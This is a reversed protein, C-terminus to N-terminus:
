KQHCQANKILELAMGHTKKCLLAAEDAENCASFSSSFEALNPPFAPWSLCHMEHSTSKIQDQAEKFSRIEERFNKCLISLFNNELLSDGDLLHLQPLLGIVEERVNPNSDFMPNSLGNRTDNLHLVRLKALNVLPVLVDVASILNGALNFTHLSELEECGELSSIKNDSVILVVLYSLTKLASLSSLQNCSLDLKVLNLCKELCGLDYVNQKELTLIFITELSFEKAKEKLFKEDLLCHM